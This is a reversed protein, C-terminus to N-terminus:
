SKCESILQLTWLWNGAWCQLHLHNVTKALRRVSSWRYAARVVDSIIWRIFDIHFRYREVYIILIQYCPNWWYATKACALDIIPLIVLNWWVKSKLRQRSRSYSNECSCSRYRVNFEWRISNSTLWRSSWRWPYRALCKCKFEIITICNRVRCIINIGGRELTVSIIVIQRNQGYWCQWSCAWSDLYHLSSVWLTNCRAWRWKWCSWWGWWICEYWWRWWCVCICKCINKYILNLSRWERYWANHINSCACIGNSDSRSM